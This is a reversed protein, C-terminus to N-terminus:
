AGGRAGASPFVIEFTSGQGVASQLVIDGGWRRVFNLSLFLGLGTGGKRMSFFPEFIRKHHEPAIGCGTDSIRIRVADTEDVAASVVGGPGSAQIANLLLNLLAHQLESEEALV